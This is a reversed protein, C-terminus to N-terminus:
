ATPKSSAAFSTVSPSRLSKMKLYGSLEVVEMRDRLPGSVPM